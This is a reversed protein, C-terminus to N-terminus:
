TADVGKKTILFKNKIFCAPGLPIKSTEDRPMEEM